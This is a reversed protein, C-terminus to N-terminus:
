GNSKEGLLSAKVGNVVAACFRLRTELVAKTHPCLLSDGDSTREHVNDVTANLMSFITPIDNRDIEITVQM